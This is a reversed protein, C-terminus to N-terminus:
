GDRRTSITLKGPKNDIADIANNLINLLVQQLQNANGEVHPLTPHLEKALRRYAAKIEEPKAEALAHRLGVDVLVVQILVNAGIDIHWRQM